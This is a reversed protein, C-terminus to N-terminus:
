NASLWEEEFAAIDADIREEVAAISSVLETDGVIAKELIAKSGGFDYVCNFDFYLTDFIIDLMEASEEERLIKDKYTMEYATPRINTYSYYGLAETIIGAFEPDCTKPLAVFANCWANVFSHYDEQSEDGKPMPLILYPDKMDRLFVAASETHHYLSLARGEAFTKTIVDNQDEHKIDPTMLERLKDIVTLTYDNTFDVKIEGDEISSTEVGACIAIALGATQSHVFGFQDDSAHMVGDSNLDSSLDKAANIAEDLTWKGERVLGVFDTTIGYQDVLNTNLYYCAPMQYMSPAIDGTTYYMIGDYKLQDYMLRSWWSEGLSLEEVDRLNMLVGDVALTGLTGGLLTSICITYTDDGALVASRLTETGNKANTIQTYQIDVNYSEEIFLDREYLGDNLIDGNLEDGPLNIHMEPHDNADLINFVRGEFDHEGLEDLRNYEAQTESEIDFATVSDDVDPVPAKSQCSVLMILALAITLRQAKM